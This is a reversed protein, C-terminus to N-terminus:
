KIIMIKNEYGLKTLAASLKEPTNRTNKFTITITKSDIDVKIEKVGKEFAMNKEIKKKCGDCHIHASFIVTSLDSQKDDDNVSIATNTITSAGASISICMVTAILILIKKM